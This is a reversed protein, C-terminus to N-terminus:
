VFVKYLLGKMVITDVRENQFPKKNGTKEFIVLGKGRNVGM